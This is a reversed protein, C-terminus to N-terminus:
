KRFGKERYNIEQKEQMKKANCKKCYYSYAGKSINWSFNDETLDFTNNCIACKRTPSKQTIKQKIKEEKIQLMRLKQCAKCSSEIGYRKNKNKKFQEFPLEQKCTACIRHNEKTVRNVYPNNRTLGYLAARKAVATASRDIAEAIEQVSYEINEYVRKIFDDEETSWKRSSRKKNEEKIEAM